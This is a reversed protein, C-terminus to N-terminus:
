NQERKLRDALEPPLGHLLELWVGNTWGFGVENQKYGVRIRTKSARTVVDYKEFIHKSREFDQLVMDVFKFAIRDADASYGYNALGEVALLHIPAWGYPFDWQAGTPHQSMALGGAQEFLALNAAVRKAQEKTALGSWLPYFTTAYEYSSQRKTVFDYDFFLGRNENWLYKYIQERRMTAQHKWKEADEPRGLLLSMEELDKASKYLLSNLCVPAYHHTDASFPGFRFSVDFGSERMSRDGQYYGATLAVPHLTACEPDRAHKSAPDCESVELLSGLHSPAARQKDIKILHAGDGGDHIFFYQAVGRYYHKPDGLIEPVPGQGHDYYRSLGTNGALHPPQNWEQYDTVAFRYARDLWALDAKGASREASYVALIMSTLFPPQSRTLYYTRNANLVAGYHEIEFFFNEVIGKAMAIRNERLLGRIIFYSDWGYMENFQGGPVVYPNPLFLVGETPILSLDIVGPETIKVPLSAVQIPCHKQLEVIDSPEPFEAPLYLVPEGETKIDEFTQCTDLSRTLHDWGTSIYKQIDQVSNAKTVTPTQGWFPNDSAVTVSIAALFICLASLTGLVAVDSNPLRV